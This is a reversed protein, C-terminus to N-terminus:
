STTFITTIESLFFNVCLFWTVMTLLFNTTSIKTIEPPFSTLASFDALWSLYFPLDKIIVSWLLSM